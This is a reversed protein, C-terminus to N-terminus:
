MVWKTVKHALEDNLLRGSIQGGVGPKSENTSRQMMM